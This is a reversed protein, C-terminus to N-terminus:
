GEKCPEDCKSSKFYLQLCVFACVCVCQLLIILFTESKGGSGSPSSKMLTRCFSARSFLAALTFNKRETINGMLDPRCVCKAQHSSFSFTQQFSVRYDHCFPAYYLIQLFYVCMRVCVCVFVYALYLRLLSDAPRSTYSILTSRWTRELFPQRPLAGTGSTGNHVTPSSNTCILKARGRQHHHGGLVATYGNHLTTPFVMNQGAPANISYQEPLMRRLRIRKGSPHARTLDLPHTPRVVVAGSIVAPGYQFSTCRQITHAKKQTNGNIWGQKFIHTNKHTM